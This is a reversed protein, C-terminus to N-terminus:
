EPLLCLQAPVLRPKRLPVELGVRLGRPLAQLQLCADTPKVFLTPFSQFSAHVATSGTAQVGQQAQQQLKRQEQLAGPQLCATASQLYALIQNRKAMLLDGTVFHLHVKKKRLEAYKRQLALEADTLSPM